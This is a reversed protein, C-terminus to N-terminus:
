HQCRFCLVTSRGDIAHTQVLRTGCRLCALGARGYVALHAGYGGREGRADRYDRFTTGRAAVADRLVTVVADHLKEVDSAQVRQGERSPDIGALWLAENAYINGIGAIRRQDMLVKKVAQRAPRLFASLRASTFDADLPEIGLSREYALFAPEDFLSLTGLRRVDRYAFAGGDALDFVVTAYADARLREGTGVLVSGTFRPQVALRDGSDLDLVVL